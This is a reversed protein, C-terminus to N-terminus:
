LILHLLLGQLEESTEVIHAAGASQLEERSGYGYLVGICPISLKKAGLVDFHRDGVLIVENTDLQEKALCYRLVDDKHSRTGDLESGYIASFLDDVKFHALIQKAFVQPKSTTIYSPIGKAALTSLVEPVGAFISAEFKGGGNYYERYYRIADPVLEEPVHCVKAFGENLPPGLFALLEDDSPCPLSLKDLAYSVSRFVGEKSALVTGDLDWSVAKLM